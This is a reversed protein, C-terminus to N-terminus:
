KKGRFTPEYSCLKCLYKERNTNWKPDKEYCYQCLQVQSFDYIYQNDVFYHKFYLAGNPYERIKTMKPIQKVDNWDAMQTIEADEPFVWMPKNLLGLRVEMLTFTGMAEFCNDYAVVGDDEYEVQYLKGTKLNKLGIYRGAFHIDNRKNIATTQAVHYKVLVKKGNWREPVVYKQFTVDMGLKADELKCIPM